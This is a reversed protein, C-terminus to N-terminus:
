VPGSGPWVPRHVPSPGRSSCVPYSCVKAYTRYSYATRSTSGIVDSLRAIARADHPAQM